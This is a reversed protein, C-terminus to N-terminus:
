LCTFVYYIVIQAAKTTNGEVVRPQPIGVGTAGNYWILEVGDYYFLWNDNAWIDDVHIEHVHAGETAVENKNEAVEKLEKM